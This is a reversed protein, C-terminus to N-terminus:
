GGVTQPVLVTQTATQDFTRTVTGGGPEDLVFATM